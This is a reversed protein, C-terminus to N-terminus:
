SQGGEAAFVGSAEVTQRAAALDVAAPQKAQQEQGAGPLLHAFEPYAEAVAESTELTLLVRRLTNALAEKRTELEIRRDSLVAVREKYHRADFGEAPDEGWRQPAALKMGSRWWGPYDSSFNFLHSPLGDVIATLEPGGNYAVRMEETLANVDREFEATDEPFARERAWAVIKGRQKANLM